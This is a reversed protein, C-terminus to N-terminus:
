GWERREKEILFVHKGCKTFVQYDDQWTPNAIDPNFYWLAGGSMDKSYGGLVLKAVEELRKRTSEIVMREHKGDHTFSFQKHQWIVEKVTNPFRYDLVRNQIVHAIMIQCEVAGLADEFYLAMTLEEVDEQTYFLPHLESLEIVHAVGEETKVEHAKGQPSPFGALVIVIGLAILGVSIRQKFQEVM